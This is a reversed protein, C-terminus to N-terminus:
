RAPDARWRADRADRAAVRAAADHSVVRASRTGARARRHAPRAPHGRGVPGRAHGIRRQEGFLRRQVGPLGRAARKRAARRTPRPRAGPLSHQRRPDKGQRARHTARHHARAHPLGRRDRGHDPRLGRAADAGSARRARAGSPLLHVGPAPSRRGARGARRRPQQDTLSEASM